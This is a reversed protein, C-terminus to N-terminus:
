GIQLTSLSYFFGSSSITDLGPRVRIASPKAPTIEETEAFLTFVLGGVIAVFSPCFRRL